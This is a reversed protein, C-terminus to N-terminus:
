NKQFTRDRITHDEEQHSEGLEKPEVDAEARNAIQAPVDAAPAKVRLKTKLEIDPSMVIISVSAGSSFWFKALTPAWVHPPAQTSESSMTSCGETKPSTGCAPWPFHM